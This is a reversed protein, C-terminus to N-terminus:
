PTGCSYPFVTSRGVSVTGPGRQFSTVTGASPDAPVYTVPSGSNIRTELGWTGAPTDGSPFGVPGVSSLGGPLTPPNQGNNCTVYAQNVTFTLTGTATIRVPVGAPVDIGTSQDPTVMDNWPPTPVTYPQGIPGPTWDAVIGPFQSPNTPQQDSQCALIATMSIVALIGKHALRM